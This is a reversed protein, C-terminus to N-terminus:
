GGAMATVVETCWQDARQVVDARRGSGTGADLPESIECGVWSDGFLGELRARVSRDAQGAAGAVECVSTLGPRGFGITEPLACNRGRRARRVLSRAENRNVPRAFLWAKAVTGDAAEFTCGYEHSVDVYGPRVEIEDGNDYHATGSVPGELAQTVDDEALVDCFASRPVPLGSLDLEAESPAVSSADAPEEPEGSFTCASLFATCVVLALSRALGNGAWARSGPGSSM